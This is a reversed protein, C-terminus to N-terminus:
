RLGRRPRGSASRMFVEIVDPGRGDRIGMAAAGFGPDAYDRMRCWGARGHHFASDCTRVAEDVDRMQGPEIADFTQGIAADAMPASTRLAIERVIRNQWTRDPRPRPAETRAADACSRLAAVTPPYDAAASASQPNNRRNRWRRCCRSGPAPEFARSPSFDIAHRVRQLSDQMAVWGDSKQQRQDREVRNHFDLASGAPALNATSRKMTQGAVRGFSFAGKLRAIQDDGQAQWALRAPKRRM